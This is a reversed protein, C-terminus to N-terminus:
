MVHSEKSINRYIHKLPDIIVDKGIVIGPDIVCHNGIISNGGILGGINQIKNMKNDNSILMQEEIITVHHNIRVGDDLISNAMTVHSGIRCEEMIISNRISSFPEIVCNNGIVTSPFICTNPGINCGEGILIPGVLYCGSSIQSNEGIEVPGQIHVNKEIKGSIERNINNLHRENVSLLDYPYVVDSWESTKITGITDNQYLLSQLVSTLGLEGENVCNKVTDFVNKKFKYVGTAIYQSSKDEPKEAISEVNKGKVGVVGYKSPHGHHTILLGSNYNSDILKQLSESGILNDGFVVIFDDDVFSEAMLLAHATGLQKKQEIFRVKKNSYKDFYQLIKNKQYGIVVIIEEISTNNISDIVHHLIPKNAVPLMVKPKDETFPRLRLGEGAALIVAKM